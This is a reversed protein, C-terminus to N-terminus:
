ALILGMDRILSSRYAPEEWCDRPVVRRLSRGDPRGITVTVSDPFAHDQVKILGVDVGIQAALRTHEEEGMPESQNTPSTPQITTTTTMTTGPQQHFASQAARYISATM